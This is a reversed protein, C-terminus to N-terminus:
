AKVTIRKTQAQETKPLHVQLIGNHYNAKVDDTAVSTPLAFSRHYSKRFAHYGNGDRSEKRKEASITLYNRTVSVDIEDPEFGPLEAHVVLENERDEVDFGWFPEPNWNGFDGFGFAPWRGFFRDTLAKFENRFEAFPDWTEEKHVQVEHKKKKWPLLSFM